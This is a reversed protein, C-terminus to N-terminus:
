LVLFVTKFFFVKQYTESCIGVGTLASQISIAQLLVVGRTPGAPINNSPTLHGTSGVVDADSPSCREDKWVYMCYICVYSSVYTSVYM